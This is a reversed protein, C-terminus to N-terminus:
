RLDDLRIGERQALESLDRLRVAVRNAQDEIQALHNQWRKLADRAYILDEALAKEQRLLAIREARYVEARPDDPHM